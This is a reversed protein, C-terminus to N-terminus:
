KKKLQLRAKEQQMLKKKKAQEERFQQITKSKVKKGGSIVEGFASFKKNKFGAM